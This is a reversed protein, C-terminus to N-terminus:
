TRAASAPPSRASSIAQEIGDVRAFALVPCLKERVLKEEPQVLAVLAGYVIGIVALVLMVTRVMPHMAAVPFLLRWAPAHANMAVGVLASFGATLAAALGTIRAAVGHNDLM